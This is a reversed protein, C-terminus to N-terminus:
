LYTRWRTSKGQSLFGYSMLFIDLRLVFAKEERTRVTTTKTSPVRRVFGLFGMFFPATSLSYDLTDIRTLYSEM